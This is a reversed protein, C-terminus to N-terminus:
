KSVQINDPLMVKESTETDNVYVNGLGDGDITKIGKAAYTTQVDEAIAQSVVRMLPPECTTDIHVSGIFLYSRNGCEAFPAM